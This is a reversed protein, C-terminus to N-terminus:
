AAHQKLFRRAKSQMIAILTGAGILAKYDADEAITLAGENAKEALEDIRAQLSPSARLDVLKRAFEVSFSDEMPELIM